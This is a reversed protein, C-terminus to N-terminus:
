EEFKFTEGIIFSSAVKEEYSEVSNEKMILKEDLYCADFVFENSM